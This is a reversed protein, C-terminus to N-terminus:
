VCLCMSMDQVIQGIENTTACLSTYLYPRDTLIKKKGDKLLCGAAM